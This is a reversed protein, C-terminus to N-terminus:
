TPQNLLTDTYEFLESWKEEIDDAYSERIEKAMELESKALQLQNLQVYCEVSFLYAGILALNLNKVMKYCDLALQYSQMQQAAIGASYWYEYEESKLATLLIYLAFSNLFQEENYKAIAVHQIAEITKDSIGLEKMFNEIQSDSVRATDLRETATTFDDLIKEYVEKEHYQNGESVMIEIGLSIYENMEDHNLSKRIEEEVKKRQLEPSLLQTHDPDINIPTLDLIKQIEEDKGIEFNNKKTPKCAEKKRPIEGHMMAELLPDHM